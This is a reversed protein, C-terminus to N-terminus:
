DNSSDRELLVNFGPSTVQRTTSKNLSVGSTGDIGYSVKERIPRRVINTFNIQRM